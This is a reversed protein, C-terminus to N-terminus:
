LASSPPCPNFASQPDASRCYPLVDSSVRVKIKVRVSVRVRVRVSLMFRLVLGLGRSTRLDVRLDATQM